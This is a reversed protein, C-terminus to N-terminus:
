PKKRKKPVRPIKAFLEQLELAFGPLLNGGVLHDGESYTVFRDPSDYVDVTRKNPNVIWIQSTGSYFFEKRKRAMESRTNGESLVEVALDPVLDPVPESPIMGDPLNETIIFSLDPLRILHPMIRLTADPGLVVGLPNDRLYLRIWFGLEMALFSEKAGMPKEVLTGDILECPVNEHELVQLLDKETAMGPTPHLRIREPPVDGLRTMVDKLNKANKLVNRALPM